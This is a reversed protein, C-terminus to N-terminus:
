IVNETEGDFLYVSEMPITRPQESMATRIAPDRLIQAFAEKADVALKIEYEM